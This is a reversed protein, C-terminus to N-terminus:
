VTIVATTLTMYVSTMKESQPASRFVSNESGTGKIKNYMVGNICVTCWWTCKKVAINSLVAIDNIM